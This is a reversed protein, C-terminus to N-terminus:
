LKVLEEQESAVFRAGGGGGEDMVVGEGYVSNLAQGCMQLLLLLDFYGLFRGQHSWDFLWLLCNIKERMTIEVNLLILTCCLHLGSLHPGEQQPKEKHQKESEGAESGNIHSDANTNRANSKGFVHFLSTVESLMETGTFELLRWKTLRFSGEPDNKVFWCLKRLYDASVTLFLLAKEPPQFTTSSQLLKDTTKTKKPDTAAGIATDSQPRSEAQGM